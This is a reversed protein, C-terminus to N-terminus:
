DSSIHDRLNYLFPLVKETEGNALMNMYDQPSKVDETCALVENAKDKGYDTVFSILDEVAKKAVGGTFDEESEIANIVREVLYNGNRNAKEVEHKVGRLFPLVNEVSGVALEGLYHDIIEEASLSSKIEKKLACAAAVAFRHGGDLLFDAVKNPYSRFDNRAARSYGRKDKSEISKIVYDLAKLSGEKFFDEM